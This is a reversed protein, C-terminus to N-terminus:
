IIYYLVDLTFYIKSIYYNKLEFIYNVWSRIEIAINTLMTVVCCTM